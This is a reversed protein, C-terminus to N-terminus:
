CRLLDRPRLRWRHDSPWISTKETITKRATASARLPSIAKRGGGPLEYASNVTYYMHEIM